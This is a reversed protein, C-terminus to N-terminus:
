EIIRNVSDNFFCSYMKEGTWKGVTYWTFILQQRHSWIDALNQNMGTYRILQNKQIQKCLYKNMSENLSEKQIPKTMLATSLWVHANENQITWESLNNKWFNSHIKKLYANKGSINKNYHKFTEECELLLRNRQFDWSTFHMDLWQIWHSHGSM